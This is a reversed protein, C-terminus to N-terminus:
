FVFSFQFGVRIYGRTDVAGVADREEREGFGLELKLAANDIFDYRVGFVIEEVDLDRDVPMYYPDGQDMARFDLRLYPTWVGNVAYGVQVYGSYHDFTTDSTHDDNSIWVFESLVQIREGRYDLQFGVLIEQISRVRAPDAANAPIQDLRVVVGLFLPHSTPPEVALLFSLAKADNADSFEQVDTVLPGRGNSLYISYSVRSRGAQLAGSLEIGAEHM